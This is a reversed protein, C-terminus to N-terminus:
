NKAMGLSNALQILMGRLAENRPVEARLFQFARELDTLQKPEDKLSAGGDVEIRIIESGPGVCEDLLHARLLDAHILEDDSFAYCLNSFDEKSISTQEGRKWKSFQAASIGARKAIESGTVQFRATLHELKQGFHSV